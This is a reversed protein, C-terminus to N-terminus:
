NRTRRYRPRAQPETDPQPGTWAALGVASLALLAYLALFGQLVLIFQIGFDGARGKAQGTLLIVLPVGIMICRAMISITMTLAGKRGRAFSAIGLCGYALLALMAVLGGAFQSWVRDEFFGEILPHGDFVPLLFALVLMIGGVGTMTVPTSDDPKFKRVHNGAAILPTSFLLLVFVVVPGAADSGFEFIRYAKGLVLFFLFTGAASWFLTQGLNRGTMRIGAFIALIGLGIAALNAIIPEIDDGPPDLFFSWETEAQLGLRSDYNLTQHPKPIVIAFLLIAGWIVAWRNAWRPQEGTRRARTRSVPIRRGATSGGRSPGAEAPGQRDSYRSRPPAKAGPGPEPAPVPAPIMFDTGCEPCRAERGAHDASSRFLKDCGPCSYDLNPGEPPM